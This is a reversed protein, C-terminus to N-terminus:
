ENIAENAWAWHGSNVLSAAKDWIMQGHEMCVIAQFELADGWQCKVAAPVGCIGFECTM